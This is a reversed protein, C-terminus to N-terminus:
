IKIHITAGGWQNVEYPSKHLVESNHRVEIDIMFPPSAKIERYAPLRNTVVYIIAHISAAEDCELVVSEGVVFDPPPTPQVGLELKPFEESYIKQEGVVYLQEGSASYGACTVIINYRFLQEYDSRAEIRYM